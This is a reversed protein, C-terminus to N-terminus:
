MGPNLQLATPSNDVLCWQMAQDFAIAVKDACKMNPNLGGEIALRSFDRVRSLATYLQGEVFLGDIVFLVADLTMGQARHVTLAYALILPVQTRSCIIDGDSDQVIFKVPLIPEIHFQGNLEFRFIPWQSAANVSRSDELTVKREAGNIYRDRAARVADSWGTSTSKFGVVTGMAGVPLAGVKHTLLFKAEQRCRFVAQGPMSAFLSRDKFQEDIYMPGADNDWEMNDNAEKSADNVVRVDGHKDVGRFCVDDGPCEQLKMSSIKAAEAKRCCLVTANASTVVSNNGLLAVMKDCLDSGVTPRVQLQALFLGLEGAVDYRWCHKLKFM